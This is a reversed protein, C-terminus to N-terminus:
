ACGACVFGRENPCKGATLCSTPALEKDIFDIVSQNAVVCHPDGTLAVNKQCYRRISLLYDKQSTTMM